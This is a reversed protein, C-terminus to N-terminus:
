FMDAIHLQNALQSVQGNTRRDTRNNTRRRREKLSVIQDCCQNLALSRTTLYPSPPAPAVAQGDTFLKRFNNKQLAM